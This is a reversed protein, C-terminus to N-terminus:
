GQDINPIQPNKEGKFIRITLITIIDLETGSKEKILYSNPRIALPIKM